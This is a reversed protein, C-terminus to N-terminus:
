GYNGFAKLNSPLYRRISAIVPGQALLTFQLHINSDRQKLLKCREDRSLDDQDLMENLQKKTDKLMDLTMKTEFIFDDKALDNVWKQAEEILFAKDRSVTRRHVVLKQAIQIQTYGHCLMLFVKERREFKSLRMRGDEITENPSKTPNDIKELM